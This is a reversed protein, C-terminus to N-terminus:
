DTPLVINLAETEGDTLTIKADEPGTEDPAVEVHVLVEFEPGNWTFDKEIVASGMIPITGTSILQSNLYLSYEREENEIGAPNVITVVLTATSPGGSDLAGDERLLLIGSAVILAVVVVTLALANAWSPRKPETTDIGAVGSGSM